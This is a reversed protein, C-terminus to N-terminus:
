VETAFQLFVTNSIEVRCLPCEKTSVGCLSCCCVHGCPFFVLDASREMCICCENELRISSPLNPRGKGEGTPSAAGATTSSKQGAKGDSFKGSKDLDVKLDKCSDLSHKRSKKMEEVQALVTARLGIETMGMLRLNEDTLTTLGEYTMRHKAFLPMYNSAGCKNLFKVVGTDLDFEKSAISAPKSSLLRQYQVLWYQDTENQKQEEMKLLLNYIEKERLMKEEQVQAWLQSLKERDAKLALQQDEESRVDRHKMELMTMQVLQQEILEVQQILHTRKIDQSMLTEHVLQKQVQESQIYSSIVQAREVESQELLEELVREDNYIDRLIKRSHYDRKLDLAKAKEELEMMERLQNEMSQKVFENELQRYEEAQVAALQEQRARLDEHIIISQDAQNLREHMLILEENAKRTKEELELLAATLQSRQADMERSVQELEQKKIEEMQTLTQMLAMEEAKQQELHKAILEDQEDLQKKFLKEVDSIQVDSASRELVRKVYLSDDLYRRDFDNPLTEVYVHGTFPNLEMMIEHISKLKYNKAFPNKEYEFTKLCTLQSFNSPLEFINNDSIDLKRLTTLSPISEPLKMFRNMKISFNQLCKMSSLDPLWDLKNNSLDLEILTTLNGINSCLSKLGNHSLDLLM